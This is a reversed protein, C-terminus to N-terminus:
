EAQSDSENKEMLKSIRYQEADPVDVFEVTKDYNEKVVRKIDDLSVHFFERRTNVKNVKDDEFARHLSAELAPADDSFILAHVDFNFPVSADSLEMIRDMPDLRRTMGIKYVDQGFSGVNSIIYVYGARQNAERYDVDAVAKQVEGLNSELERKKEQLAVLDDGVADKMQAIVQDLADQYQKREKELKKRKEAIEKALKAAEREQARLERMREKEQEKFRAYEFAVRAEQQKLSVYAGPISIGMVRGLKSITQASKEMAALSADINSFKVKRVIEDCEGNYARMLLKTTDLVMKRGETKSGNVTWSTKKASENISRVFGKEEERLAKIKAKYEDVSQFDFRPKYLGFEQLLLEDDFNVLFKKKENVQKTLEILEQLADIKRQQAAEEEERMEALKDSQAKLELLEPTLLAKTRELEAQLSAAEDKYQGAKFVDMFGMTSVGM